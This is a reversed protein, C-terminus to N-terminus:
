GLIGYARFRSGMVVHLMQNFFFISTLVVLNVFVPSAETSTAFGTCPGVNPCLVDDFFHCCYADGNVISGSTNNFFILLVAFYALTILDGIGVLAAVTSYLRAWGFSDRYLLSAGLLVLPLANFTLFYLFGWQADYLNSYFPGPSPPIFFLPYGNIFVINPFIWSVLWWVMGASIVGFVVAVFYAEYLTVSRVFGRARMESNLPYNILLALLFFVLSFWGHQQWESSVGLSGDFGPCPITAPPCDLALSPFFACCYNAPDNCASAGASTVTNCYFLAVLLVGVGAVVSLVISVTTALMHLDSYVLSDRYVAIVSLTIPVLGSFLLMLVIWWTVNSVNSRPIGDPGSGLPAEFVTNVVVFSLWYYFVAASVFSVLIFVNRFEHAKM